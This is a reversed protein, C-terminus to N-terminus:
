GAKVTARTGAAGHRHQVTSANAFACLQLPHKMCSSCTTSYSKGAAEQLAPPMLGRGKPTQPPSQTERGQVMTM